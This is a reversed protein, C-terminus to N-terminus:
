QPKPKANAGAVFAGYGMKKALDSLGNGTQSLNMASPKSMLRAALAPDKSANLLLERASNEPMDSLWKLGKMGAAVATGWMGGSHALTGVGAMFQYKGSTINGLLNGTTLNQVDGKSATPVSDMAAGKDLEDGVQVVMQMQPSTLTNKADQANKAFYAAWKGAQVPNQGSISPARSQESADQLMESQEIPKSMEHYKALYDAYGPAAKDIQNDLSNMIPKLLGGAMRKAGPNMGTPDLLDQANSQMAKKLPYAYEPNEPNIAGKLTNQAATMSKQVQPTNGEPSQMTRNIVGQPYNMNVSPKTPEARAVKSALADLGENENALDIYDGTRIASAPLPNAGTRYSFSVPDGTVPDAKTATFVSSKGSNSAKSSVQYGYKELVNQVQKQGAKTSMDVDSIDEFDGQVDAKFNQYQTAPLRPDNNYNAFANERMPGTTSEREDIANQLTSPTGAETTIHRDIAQNNEDNFSSYDNPHIKELRKQMGMLGPDQSSVAASRQYDPIPSDKNALMNTIAALPDTSLNRLKAGVSAEQGSRTFNSAGTAGLTKEIAAPAIGGALSALLQTLPNAGQQQAIHQGLSGMIGAGPAGLAAGGSLGAMGARLDGAMGSPNDPPKIATDIFKKALYSLPDLSNSGLDQMTQTPGRLLTDGIALPGRLLTDGMGAMGEVTGAAISKSYDQVNDTNQVLAAPVPKGGNVGLPDDTNVAETKDNVGLPDSNDPLTAGRQDDIRNKWGAANAAQSSDNQVIKDNLSQRADLISNPDGGSEAIIKKAAPVGNNVATDFAVNQAEPPLTDANIEDWFNKKYFNKTYDQAGDTDGNDLMSKVTAFDQPWWKSSIGNITAGGTDTPSDSYGGEYQLTNALASDFSM